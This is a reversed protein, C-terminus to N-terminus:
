SSRMESIKSQVDESYTKPRNRIQELYSFFLNPKVRALSCPRPQRDQTPARFHGIVLFNSQFQRILMVRHPEPTKNLLCRGRCRSHLLYKQMSCKVFITLLYSLHPQQWGSEISKVDLVLSLPHPIFDIFGNCAGRLYSSLM